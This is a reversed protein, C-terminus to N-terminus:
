YCLFLIKSKHGQKKSYCWSCFSFSSYFWSCFSGIEAPGLSSKRSWCVVQWGFGRMWWYNFCQLFCFYWVFAKRRESRSNQVLKLNWLILLSFCIDIKRKCSVFMSRWHWLEWILGSCWETNVSIPLRLLNFVLYCLGSAYDQHCKVKKLGHLVTKSKLGIHGNEVIPAVGLLGLGMSVMFSSVMNVCWCLQWLASWLSYIVCDELREEGRIGFLDMFCLLGTKILGMEGLQIM